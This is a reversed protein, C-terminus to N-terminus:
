LTETDQKIRIKIHGTTEDEFTIFLSKDQGLEVKTQRLSFSAVKILKLLFETDYFELTSDKEVPEIGDIKFWREFMRPVQSSFCLKSDKIQIGIKKETGTLGKCVMSLDTTNVCIESDTKFDTLSPFNASGRLTTISFGSSVASKTDEAEIKFESLENFSITLIKGGRITKMFGNIKATPVVFFAEPEDDDFEIDQPIAFEFTEFIEKKLVIDLGITRRTELSVSIGENNVRFPINDVRFSHFLNVIQKLSNSKEQITAKFM